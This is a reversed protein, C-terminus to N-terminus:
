KLLTMRKSFVIDGATLRYFYIGSSYSSADWTVMHNGAEMRGGVLTEVKQGMLNYIELHVDGAVPLDFSITTASNFPNPYNASLSYEAPIQETQNQNEDFWGSLNWDAAAGKEPATVDFGFFASDAILNPYRGCYAIYDYFGLPAILPVSQTVNNVIITDHPSLRIDDFRQLPGYTAGNPLRLMIWVDGILRIGTLNQLVGTFTFSGGAPVTVPLTDPIMAVVIINQQFYYVGMDAVTGDPDPPSDPDGADICPSGWNLQFYEHDPDVFQPDMFINYYVDCSDGNANTQTLTGLGPPVSGGFPDDNDFDSYSVSASTYADFEIDHFQQSKFISNTLTLNVNGNLRIGGAFANDGNSLVDCHDILLSDCEGAYIGGGCNSLAGNSDITCESFSVSAAWGIHTGGAGSVSFCHRITNNSITFTGGPSLIYIGGGKNHCSDATIICDTITGSSADCIAIGGGNYAHNNSITCNSISPNSFTFAAIGGGEGNSASNGSINCSNIVPSSSHCYIGGGSTSSSNGTIDCYSIEPNSNTLYIGGYFFWGSNDSITCHTFVPNCSNCEIGAFIGQCGTITCYALHSSDPANNFTIGTWTAIGTFLISDTETGVAELFGNVELNYSGQFIVEVGEHIYLISDVPININGNINYPNGSAFWHGFVPGGPIETANVPYAIMYALVAMLVTLSKMKREKLHTVKM